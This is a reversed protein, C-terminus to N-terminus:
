WTCVIGNEVHDFAIDFVFAILNGMSSLAWFSGIMMDGIKAATMNMAISALVRVATLALPALTRCLARAMWDGFFKGVLKIGAYAAYSGTSILIIDIPVAIEWTYLTNLLGFTSFDINSSQQFINSREQYISDIEYELQAQTIGLEAFKQNLEDFISSLDVSNVADNLYDNEDITDSFKVSMSNEFKENTGKVFDNDIHAISSSPVIPAVNDAKSNLFVIAVASVTMVVVLAFILSLQLKGVKHSKKFRKNFM